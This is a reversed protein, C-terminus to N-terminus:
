SMPLGGVPVLLKRYYDIKKLIFMQLYITSTVSYSFCETDDGEKSVELSPLHPYKWLHTFAGDTGTYLLVQNRSCHGLEYSDKKVTHLSLVWPLLGLGVVEPTDIDGVFRLVQIV